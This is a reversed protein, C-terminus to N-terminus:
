KKLAAAVKAAVDPALAKARREDPADYQGPQAAAIEDILRKAEEPHHEELLLEAWYVKARLNNPNIALARQYAATAKKEDYKPWPLRAYYRGWAVAISGHAFSPDIKDAERLHGTFKGELRQALARLVGIGLAYQGMAAAAYFHGEVGGPNVVVAREALDWATKALKIREDKSRKPDDSCWFHWRATRWLVAYDAPAAAMAQDLVVKDDALVTPDERKKWLEDARAVLAQRDHESLVGAARAPAPVATTAAIVLAMVLASVLERAHSSSM